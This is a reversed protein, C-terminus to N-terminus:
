SEDRFEKNIDLGGRTASPSGMKLKSDFVTYALNGIDALSGEEDGAAHTSKM